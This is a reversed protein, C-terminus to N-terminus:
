IPEAPSRPPLKSLIVKPHRELFYRCDWERAFLLVPRGDPDEALRAGAPLMEGTVPESDKGLWRLVEWSTQELRAEAGYENSLRYQLVEFQLPGVAGLLPVRSQSGPINFTQVVGEQLLHDFGARFRKFQATNGCHLFALHEPPFRPVEPYIITPDETLTDGIRFEEHGVIGIVDGAYAEDVTERERGFLKHSSSIRLSEKTRANFVKMDREFRGSCVRLFAIQDRHKPDMNSQIKFVFGSFRPDDVAVPGSLASQPRPEPAMALFNDLLLQVGFNNVASGFFVPTLDGRLVAGRDFEDGVADLMSVEELFRATSIADAKGALERDLDRVVTLPARYAGGPVREFLHLDRSRRDFVGKFDSGSGLPWNVPYTQLQLSKDIEDLLELPERAPRDMKNIFTFIPIQRMRCIEFLKLTQAEIGKAADLVMIVSDVAMLVRYTDESFDRHGPTDLLNVKCGGYDFQLVTSSVSIGRKKELDMWDSSTSQQKRRATVSGALQLAGGYLLFKETLTTKGADPHSIIAFTRRKAIENPNIM